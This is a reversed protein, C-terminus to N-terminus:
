MSLIILIRRLMAILVLGTTIFLGIWIVIYAFAVDKRVSDDYDRVEGNQDLYAVMEGKQNACGLVKEQSEESANIWNYARQFTKPSMGLPCLQLFSLTTQAANQTVIGAGTMFLLILISLIRFKKDSMKLQTNQIKRRLRRQKM